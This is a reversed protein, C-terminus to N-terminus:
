PMLWTRLHGSCGSSNPRVWVPIALTFIAATPTAGTTTRRRIRGSPPPFRVSVATVSNSCGSAVASPKLDYTGILPEPGDYTAMDVLGPLGADVFLIPDNNGLDVDADVSVQPRQGGALDSLQQRGLREPIDM